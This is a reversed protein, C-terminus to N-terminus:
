GSYEIIIILGDGGTGGPTGSGVEGSIADNTIGGGGGGAGYTGNGGSRSGSWVTDYGGDGGQPIRGASRFFYYLEAPGPSGGGGGPSNMDEGASGAFEGGGAEAPIDPETSDGMIHTEGRGGSFGGNAGIGPTADGNQGGGQGGYGRLPLEIIYTDGGTGGASNEDGSSGGAGIVLNLQTYGLADLSYTGADCSGGAGGGGGYARSSWFQMIGGDGGGGAGVVFIRVEKTNNAINHTESGAIDYITMRGGVWDASFTMDNSVSSVVDGPEYTNGDSGIWNYFLLLNRNQDDVWETKPAPIVYSSGQPIAVSFSDSSYGALFDFTAQLPPDVDSSILAGSILNLTGSIYQPSTNNKPLSISTVYVNEGDLDPYLDKMDDSMTLEFLYGDSYVQWDNLAEKLRALWTANCWTESDRGSDNYDYQNVRTFSIAFSKSIGTDICLANKAGYVTIPTTTVNVTYTVSISEVVGFEFSYGTGNEKTDRLRIEISM